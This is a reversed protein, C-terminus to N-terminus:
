WVHIGKSFIFCSTQLLLKDTSLGDFAVSVLIGGAQQVAEVCTENYVNNTKNTTQLLTAIAKFPSVNSPCHQATLVACKKEDALDKEALMWLDTEDNVQVIHKPAAGGLAVSFATSFEHVKVVKTADIALGFILRCSSGTNLKSIYKTVRCKVSELDVKYILDDIIRNKAAIRQLSQIAYGFGNTRIFKYAKPSKIKMAHCFAIVKKAAKATPNKHRAVLAKVMGICLSQRAGPVTSYWEYFNNMFKDASKGEVNIGFRRLKDNTNEKWEQFELFMKIQDKLSQFEENKRHKWNIVKTLTKIDYSNLNASSRLLDLCTGVEDMSEVRRLFKNAESNRDQLEDFCNKCSLKYYTKFKSPRSVAKGECSAVKAYYNGDSCVIQISPSPEGYMAMLKLLRNSRKSDNYIGPCVKTKTSSTKTKKRTNMITSSTSDDCPACFFDMITTSQKTGCSEKHKETEKHIKWNKLGFTSQMVLMKNIRTYYFPFNFENNSDKSSNYPPHM